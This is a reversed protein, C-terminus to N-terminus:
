ASWAVIPTDHISAPRAVVIHAVGVDVGIASRGAVVATVGTMTRGDVVLLGEPPDTARWQVFEALNTSPHEPDTATSTGSSATTWTLDRLDGGAMRVREARATVVTAQRDDPLLYTLAVSYLRSNMRLTECAFPRPVADRLRAVPFGLETALRRARWRQWPYVVWAFVL